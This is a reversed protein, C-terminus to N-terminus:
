GARDCEGSSAAALYLSRATYTSICRIVAAVHLLNAEARTFTLSTPEVPCNCGGWRRHFIQMALSRRSWGRGHARQCAFCFATGSTWMSPFSM